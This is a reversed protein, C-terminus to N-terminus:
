ERTEDEDDESKEDNDETETVGVPPKATGRVSTEIMYKNAEYLKENEYKLKKVNDHFESGNIGAAERDRTSFGEKVRAAAAQVTKTPDIDLKPFGIHDCKCWAARVTPSANFNSLEELKGMRVMEQLFQRFIPINLDTNEQEREMEVKNWTLLLEGRHASYNSNFSINVVSQAYGEAATMQKMIADHFKEYNVNPRRTDYSQIEEGAGLNQIIMGADNVEAQKPADVVQPTSMQGKKIIGNLPQTSKKDESPKIWVAILANVMAAQLEALKYSTLKNMEHLYSAIASIGRFQGIEEINAGHIMFIRNSKYDYKPIRVYESGSHVYYAIATGWEDLEIGSVVTRKFKKLLDLDEQKTPDKIQEPRVFQLAIPCVRKKVDQDSDLYRVIAFYEGDVKRSTRAQAQLQYFTRRGTIDSETSEVYLRYLQEVKKIIKRQTEEDTDPKCLDWVPTWELKLGTSITLEVSRGVLARTETSETYSKRAQRRLEVYDKFVVQNQAMSTSLANRSKSGDFGLAASMGWFWNSASIDPYPNNQQPQPKSFVSKVRDLLTM